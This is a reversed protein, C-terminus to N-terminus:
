VNRLRQEADREATEALALERAADAAAARASARTAEARELQARLAVVQSDALAASAEARALADALRERTAVAVRYAADLQETSPASQQRGTSAASLLGPSLGALAEFGAPQLVDTYRGPTSPPAPALSLAELMRTVPDSAAAGGAQAALRAASAAADTLASRHAAEAVRVDSPRGELAALQATRLALGADLLRTWTGRDNWYLLNVAWPIQTPKALSKVLSVSAADGKLSKALANRAATFAELPLAYLADIQSDLSPTAM